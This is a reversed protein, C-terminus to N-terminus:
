GVGQYRHIDGFWEYNLIGIPLYSGNSDITVTTEKTPLNVEVRWQQWDQAPTGVLNSAEGILPGTYEQTSDPRYLNGLTVQAYSSGQMLFHIEGLLLEGAIINTQQGKPGSKRAVAESLQVSMDPSVTGIYCETASYDGEVVLDNGGTDDDVVIQTGDTEVAICGSADYPLTFTTKDTGGDYSPSSASGLVRRDLHITLEQSANDYYDANAPIKELVIDSGRKLVVYIDTNLFNVGMVEVGSDFEWRFWASQLRQRNNQDWYFKYCYLHNLNDDDRMLLLRLSTSGVMYTANEPLYGPVHESVTESERIGADEDYQYEVINNGENTPTAFYIAQGLVVPPVDPDVEFEALPEINATTPSLIDDGKFLFLTNESMLVLAESLPAAHHIVSVKPHSIAVDVPDTDLITLVSGRFLDFFEGSQSLVINEGTYFGLRNKFFVFGNLTEDLFSPWPNTTVDGFQRDAWDIRDFTFTGDSERVLSHPMTAPDLEIEIGPAVTEEYTGIGSNTEKEYKLYYDDFDNDESGKVKVIFGDLNQRPLKTFDETVGKTLRIYEGASGQSGTVEISFDTGDDKEIHIVSELLTETFGAPLDTSLKKTIVASGSSANTFTTAGDMLAQAINRTNQQEQEASSSNDGVKYQAVVTGDITITYESNAQADRIEITAQYLGQPSVTSTKAVTVSRNMVFTYDAITIIEFDSEPDTSYLYSADKWSLTLDITGASYSSVRGRYYRGNTTTVSTTTNTTITAVTTEEGGFAGTTSEEILVTDGSIGTTIFDAQTTGSPLYIQVASSSGTAAQDDFLTETQTAFNVTKATGDLEVIDIDLSQFAVEYRENVDRNIQHIYAGSTPWSSLVAQHISPPRRRLGKLITPYANVVSEQQTNLRLAAPQQSVGNIM